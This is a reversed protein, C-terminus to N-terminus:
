GGMLKAMRRKMEAESVEEIRTALYWENGFPDTLRGTRDGWFQDKVPEKVKFGAKVAKAFLADCDAVYMCLHTAHAPSQASAEGLMLVSDGFELEAHAVTGDPMDLRTRQEAGFVQRYLDIAKAAGVMACGPTLTRYGAPIPSVPM